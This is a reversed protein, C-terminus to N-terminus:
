AHFAHLEPGLDLGGGGAPGLALDPVRAEDDRRHLLEPLPPSVGVDAGRFKGERRRRENGPPSRRVTRVMSKESVSSWRAIWSIAWAKARSSSAGCEAFHSSSRCKGTSTMRAAAPRPKAPM